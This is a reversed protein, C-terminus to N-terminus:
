SVRDFDVSLHDYKGTIFSVFKEGVLLLLIRREQGRVARSDRWQQGGGAALGPGAPKCLPMAAVLMYVTGKEITLTEREFWPGDKSLDKGKGWVRVDGESLYYKHKSRYLKGFTM